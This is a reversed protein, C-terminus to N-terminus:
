EIFRDRYEPPMLPCHTDKSISYRRKAFSDYMSDRIFKPVIYMFNCLVGLPHITKLIEIIASSKYFTKENKIFIISDINPNVLRKNALEQHTRGQLSTFNIKKKHDWKLLKRIYKSCFLCEGDYIVLRM